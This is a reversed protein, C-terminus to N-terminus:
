SCCRSARWFERRAGPRAKTPPSGRSASRAARTPALAHGRDQGRPRRPAAPAGVDPGHLLDRDPGAAPAPQAVLAANWSLKSGDLRLVEIGLAAKGITRGYRWEAFVLYNFWVSIAILTTIYASKEQQATLTENEIEPVAAYVAIGVLLWGIGLDVLGALLRRGLSAHEPEASPSPPGM